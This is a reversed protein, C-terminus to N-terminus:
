VLEEDGLQWIRDDEYDCLFNYIVICATIWGIAREHDSKKRIYIPLGRLFCWRNKLVGFAHEVIVRAEALRENFGKYGGIVRGALPEKYSSMCRQTSRYAKDGLIYKDPQAFFLNTRTFFLSGGFVTADGVSGPFGTSIYTFRRDSDSIAQLNLTYQKKRNFYTEGHFSPTYQIIISTGDLFRVCGPFQSKCVIKSRMIRFERTGPKPWRIYRCSLHILAIICRQCYLRATGEGIGLQAAARVTSSVFSGLFYLATARQSAPSAQSNGSQNHFISDNSITFALINFSARTM